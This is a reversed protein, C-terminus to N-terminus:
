QNEGNGTNAADAAADDRALREDGSLDYHHTKSRGSGETWHVILGAGLLEKIMPETPGNKGFARHVESGTVGSRRHLWDLFKEARPDPVYHGGFIEMACAESYDWVALASELHALSVTTEQDMLAYFLALRLVQPAARCTAYAVGKPLDASRMDFEGPTDGDGYLQQWREDFEPTSEIVSVPVWGYQRFCAKSIPDLESLTSEPVWELVEALRDAVTMMESEHPQGGKPLRTRRYAIAYLFRPALGGHDDVTILKPAVAFTCDAVISGHAGKVVTKEGQVARRLDDGDWMMKLTQALSGGHFRNLMKGFEAELIMLRDGGAKFEETILAEPSQIGGTIRQAWAEDALEMLYSFWSGGSGKRAGSEGVKLVFFRAPHFKRDRLLAPMPGMANGIMAIGHLAVSGEDAETCPMIMDIIDGFLGRFAEPRLSPAGGSASSATSATTM